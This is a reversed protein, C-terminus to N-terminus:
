QNFKIKAVADRSFEVRRSLLCRIMQENFLIRNGNCNGPKGSIQVQNQWTDKFIDNEVIYAADRETGKFDSRTEKDNSLATKELGDATSPKEKNDSGASSLPLRYRKIDIVQDLTMLKMCWVLRHFLLAINEKKNNDVAQEGEAPSEGVGNDFDAVDITADELLEIISHIEEELLLAGWESFCVCKTFM